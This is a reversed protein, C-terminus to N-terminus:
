SHKRKRWQKAIHSMRQKQPLAKVSASKMMKSVYQAYSNAKRKSLHVVGDQSVSTKPMFRRCHTCRKRRRTSSTTTDQAKTM